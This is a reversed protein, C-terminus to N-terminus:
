RKNIPNKLFFERILDTGFTSMSINKEACYTQVKEKIHAPPLLVIQRKNQDKLAM